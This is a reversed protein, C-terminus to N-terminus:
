RSTCEKSAACSLLLRMRHRGHRVRRQNALGAARAYCDRDTEFLLSQVGDRRALAARSRVHDTSAALGRHPARRRNDARAAWTGQAISIEQNAALEIFRALPKPSLDMGEHSVSSPGVAVRGEVVTVVTSDHELRVDFQTGIDVVEASGAFVRFPRTPEHTVEFDAEGSTLTVLRETKGYRITVASDTNLHLVSNDTLRRSLQEGHRTEFHLSTINETASPHLIPRVNWFM